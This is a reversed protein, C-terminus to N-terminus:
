GKFSEEILKAWTEKIEQQIKPDTDDWDNGMGSRDSLDLIIKDVAIKAKERDTL